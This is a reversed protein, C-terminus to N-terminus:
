LSASFNRYNLVPTMESNNDISNSYNNSDQIDPKEPNEDETGSLRNLFDMANPLMPRLQSLEAATINPIKVYDKGVNMFIEVSDELKSKRRDWLDKIATMISSFNPNDEVGFGLFIKAEVFFNESPLKCFRGSAVENNNLETLKELDLWDPPIVRCKQRRKLDCALWLPVKIPIGARFPGIEGTILYSKRCNFKPIINVITEEALFEIEVPEM